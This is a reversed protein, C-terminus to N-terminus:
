QTTPPPGAPTEAPKAKRPGRVGKVPRVGFQVLDDSGFGFSGKLLASARARLREGQNEVEQRQHVVDQLRGRALEQERDLVKARAILADFEDVLGQLFPMEALHPKINASLLEWETIKRAFVKARRM